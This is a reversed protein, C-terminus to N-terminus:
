APCIEQAKVYRKIWTVATNHVITLLWARPNGGRFKSYGKWARAYAEQVVDQADEETGLIWRALNYAVDLHPLFAEEFPSGLPMGDIQRRSNGPRRASESDPMSCYISSHFYSRTVQRDKFPVQCPNARM